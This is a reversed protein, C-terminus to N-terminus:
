FGIATGVGIAACIVVFVFAYCRFIFGLWNKLSVGGLVLIPLLNASTPTMLNSFGDGCQLTFVAMQRTIGLVDALPAMIPMCVATQGSGSTIFINIIANAIFMGIPALASPLYGLPLSLYYVITDLIKSQNLIFNMMSVFLLFIIVSLLDGAGKAFYKITDDLSYGAIYGCALTVPFMISALQLVGFHYIPAGFAFFLMSGVFLLLMSYDQRSLPKSEEAVEEQNEEAGFDRIDDHRDQARKAWWMLFASVIGLNILTVITRFGFGSYPQIGAIEQGMITTLMNIPSTMFGTFSGMVILAVGFIRDAHLQKALSLGLPVFLIASSIMTGFAGLLGMAYIIFPVILLAKGRLRKILHHLARNFVKNSNVIGMLGGMVIISIFLRGFSAYAQPGMGMIVQHPLLYVKPIIHYTGPVAMKGVRQYEGSPIIFSLIYVVAIAIIIVWFMSISKEQEANKGM